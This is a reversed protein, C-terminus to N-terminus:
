YRLTMTCHLRCTNSHFSAFTPSSVGLLYMAREGGRCYESELLVQILVSYIGSDLRSCVGHDEDDLEKVIKIVFSQNIKESHKRQARLAEKVPNIV